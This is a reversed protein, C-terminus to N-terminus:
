WENRMGVRVKPIAALISKRLGTDVGVVITQM